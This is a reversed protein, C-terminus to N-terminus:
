SPEKYSALALAIPDLQRIWGAFDAYKIKHGECELHNINLTLCNPVGVMRTEKTIQNYVHEISDRVNRVQNEVTATFIAVRKPVPVPVALKMNRLRQALRIARHMTTVATEMHCVARFYPLLHSDHGKSIFELIQRRCSEYEFILHDTLRIFNMSLAVAVPDKSGGGAFTRNLAHTLVKKSDLRSLDPMNCETTPWDAVNPETM